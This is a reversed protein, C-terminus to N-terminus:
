TVSSNNREAKLDIKSKTHHVSESIHIRIQGLFIHFYLDFIYINFFYRPIDLLVDLESSLLYLSEHGGLKLCSM